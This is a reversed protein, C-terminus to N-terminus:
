HPWNVSLTAMKKVAQGREGVGISSSSSWITWTADIQNTAPGIGFEEALISLQLGVRQRVYCMASAAASSM